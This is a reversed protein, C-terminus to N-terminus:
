LAANVVYVTVNGTRKGLLAIHIVIRYLIHYIILGAKDLMYISHLANHLYKLHVINM